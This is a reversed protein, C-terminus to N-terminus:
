AHKRRKWGNASFFNSIDNQIKEMSTYRIDYLDTTMSLLPVDLDRCVNKLMKAIGSQDKHGMYGPFIVCNANYDQVGKTVDDVFVDVWGRGQRIM